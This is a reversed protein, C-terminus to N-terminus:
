EDIVIKAASEGALYGTSWAAQLNYGGTPGDIDLVEGAFHLNELIRSQLTNPYVEKLSVGGATVMAKEFGGLSTINLTLQKITHTMMKREKKSINGANKAIDIKTITLITNALRDPMINTLVNGVNKKSHLRFEEQLLANLQPHDLDPRLDIRLEVKEEDLLKGISKSMGLIAPGTAGTATFVIDGKDGHEKKGNQFVYTDVNQLSLGMLDKIWNNSAIVPVIAQHPEILSHGIAKAWHMGEGTSGTGPYSMGGTCIIYRKATISRKAMITTNWRTDNNTSLNSNEIKAQVMGDRQVLGTVKTECSIVVGQEKLLDTMVRLVDRASDTAPFVRGEDEIKTDLGRQNFFNLTDTTNFAKLAPFLFKGNKGFALLFNQIDPEANTINCRGNGTIILKKGLSINKELLITRAGCQAARGAAMMGAPGGGIVAVDYEM